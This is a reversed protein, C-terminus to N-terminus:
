CHKKMKILEYWYGKNLLVLMYIELPNTRFNDYYISIYIHHSKLMCKWGMKRLKRNACVIANTTFDVYINWISKWFDLANTLLRSSLCSFWNLKKKGLLNDKRCLDLCLKLHIRSSFLWALGKTPDQAPPPKSELPPNLLSRKYFKCNHFAYLFL